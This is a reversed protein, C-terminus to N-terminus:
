AKTVYPVTIVAISIYPFCNIALNSTRFALNLTGSDLM